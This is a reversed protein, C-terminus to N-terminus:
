CRPSEAGLFPGLPGCPLLWSPVPSAEERDKQSLPRRPATPEGRGVREADTASPQPGVTLHPCTPSLSPHSPNLSMLLLM